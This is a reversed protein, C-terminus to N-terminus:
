LIGYFTLSLSTYFIKSVNVYPCLTNVEIKADLERIEDQRREQKMMAVAIYPFKEVDSM